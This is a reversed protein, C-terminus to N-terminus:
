DAMGGTWPLRLPSRTGLADVGVLEAPLGALHALKRIVRMRVAASCRSGARRVGSEPRPSVSRVSVASAQADALSSVVDVWVKMVRPAYADDAPSSELRM